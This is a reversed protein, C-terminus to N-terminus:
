HYVLRSRALSLLAPNEIAKGLFLIEARCPLYKRTPSASPCSSPDNPSSSVQGPLM